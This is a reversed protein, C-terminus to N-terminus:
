LNSNETNTLFTVSGDLSRFWVSDSIASSIGEYDLEEFDKFFNELIEVEGHRIGLRGLM